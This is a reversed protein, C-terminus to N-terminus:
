DRRVGRRRPRVDPIEKIELRPKERTLAFGQADFVCHLLRGLGLFVRVVGDCPLETLIAFNLLSNLTAQIVGVMNLQLTRELRSMNSHNTPKTRSQVRARASLPCGDTTSNTSTQDNSRSFSKCLLHRKTEMCM